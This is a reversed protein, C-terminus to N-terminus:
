KPVARLQITATFSEGPAITPMPLIDDPRNLANNIHPVPEFCFADGGKPVYVVAAAMDSIINLMMPRGDWSICAQGDWGAYCHDIDRGALVGDGSFDFM